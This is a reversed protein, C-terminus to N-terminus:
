GLPLTPRREVSHAGMEALGVRHRGPEDVGPRGEVRLPPHGLERGHVQESGQQELNDAL